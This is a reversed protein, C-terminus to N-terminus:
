QKVLAATSANRNSDLPLARERHIAHNRHIRVCGLKKCVRMLDGLQRIDKLPSAGRRRLVTDGPILRRDSTSSIAPPLSSM